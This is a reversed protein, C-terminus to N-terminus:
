SSPIKRLQLFMIFYFLMVQADKAWPGSNTKDRLDTVRVGGWSSQLGSAPISSLLIIVMCISAAAWARRRKSHEM